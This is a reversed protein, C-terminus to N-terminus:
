DSKQHSQLIDRQGAKGARFHEQVHKGFLHEDPQYHASPRYERTKGELHVADESM